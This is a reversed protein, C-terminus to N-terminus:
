LNKYIIIYTSYITTFHLTITNKFYVTNGFTNINPENINIKFTKGCQAM